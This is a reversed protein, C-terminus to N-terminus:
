GCNRHILRHIVHTLVTWQGLEDVMIVVQDNKSRVANILVKM